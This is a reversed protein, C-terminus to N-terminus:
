SMEYLGEVPAFGNRILNLLIPPNILVWLPNLDKTNNSQQHNSLIQQQILYRILSLHPIVSLILWLKPFILILKYLEKDILFHQSKM